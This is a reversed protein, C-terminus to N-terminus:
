KFEKKAFATKVIFRSCLKIFVAILVTLVVASVVFVGSNNIVFINALLDFVSHHLLYVEYSVTGLFILVRNGIKLNRTIQLLLLLVAMALAIKLCYDGLFIANKWKLYATGLLGSVMFLIVCKGAWRKKMWSKLISFCNALIIGYAFGWSETPWILTLKVPTLKDVLSFTVVILCIFVDWCCGGGGM